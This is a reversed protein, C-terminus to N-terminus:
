NRTQAIQVHAKRQRSNQMSKPSNKFNVATFPCKRERFGDDGLLSKDLGAGAQIHEYEKSEDRDRPTQWARKGVAVKLRLSGDGGFFHRARRASGNGDRRMRKDAVAGM